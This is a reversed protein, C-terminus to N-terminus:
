ETASSHRTLEARLQAITQAPRTNHIMAHCNPCVPILDKLPDVVYQGKIESLPVIHHVHIYQKGIPGYTREFSFACVRCSYGFHELCKARAVPSREYSNISVTRSAGEILPAAPDIEEPLRGAAEEDSAYWGPGIRILQKTTLVPTFAGIKAPGTDDDENAVSYVMPFTMLRYGAEEILRVHERSQSYGPTRKGKRSLKWNESLILAKTGSEYTDWQGFIIVRDQENIFSWSWTWNRCTAGNSEIFQKRNM